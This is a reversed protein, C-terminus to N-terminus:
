RGSIMSACCLPVRNVDPVASQNASCGSARTIATVPVFPLLVTLASIACKRRASPRRVASAPLMPSGSSSNISASASNQAISSDLKWVLSTASDPM